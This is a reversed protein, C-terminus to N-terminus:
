RFALPVTVTGILMISLTFTVDSLQPICVFTKDLVEKLQESVPTRKITIVTVSLEFLTFVQTALTVTFSVVLGVMTHGDLIETVEHM